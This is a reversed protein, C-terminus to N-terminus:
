DPTTLRQWQHPQMYIYCVPTCNRDDYGLLLMVLNLHASFCIFARGTRGLDVYCHTTYEVSTLILECDHATAMPTHNCTYHCMPKHAIAGDYSDLCGCMCIQIHVLVFLSVFQEDLTLM